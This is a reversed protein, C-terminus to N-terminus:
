TVPLATGEADRSCGIIRVSHVASKERICLIKRLSSDCWVGWYKKNSTAVIVGLSRAHQLSKVGIKAGFAHDM